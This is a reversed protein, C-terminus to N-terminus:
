HRGTAGSAAITIRGERFESGTQEMARSLAPWDELDTAFIKAVMHRTLEPVLLNLMAPSYGMEDAIRAWYLNSSEWSEGLLRYSDGAFAPFPKVNLIGCNDTQALIPHPVGFDKSLREPDTDSSDKRVLDDLERGEAGWSGADAPFRKRYEAALYFKEAPTIQPILAGVEDEHSLARQTMEMRKATMADSLIETVRGRLETNQVSALLLEEGFRQYLAAAHMETSSVRWWRPQTASVLLTPVEARWILAQVNEPAIFDEETLALVYPLDALSGILYAGGGATVGVGILEPSDWTTLYGQISSASFDHSRVLLPNHHLTQAGPPEDYAYNLGVLTDRLFPTLQGRAVELQAPSGPGRIVKTLDTRIQLEAHRSNYIGGTWAIKEGETFIPRPMEFERLNGALQILRDGIKAGHAMEGLGDYLGFLTDLSALRQDDMVTRMREALERHARRGDESEQVPGALLDIIQDQSLDADGKVTVLLSRLANRSAEFLQISSSVAAFPQVVDQWSQNIRDSPIQQQRALIEWLGIDAQFSGMANARLTPSNIRNVAEAASVFGGISADNLAPFDSFILYWNHFRSFGGSLLLVTKDSLRPGPARAHDIASLMLYTQLPGIDNDFASCAVLALLLQDPDDWNSARKVWGRVLEPSSNESLIQRWIALTGPVYPKDNPEWQVRTSLILLGSNKPYVGRTASNDAGARRYVDYLLKMRPWETLRMQQGRSVRSVADFYAALWGHDKTLLHNVFNASSAPSAGVLNEWGREASAGGPVIVRGSRICIQSGYFDLAPAVPLLARLGPSRSLAIQTEEDNKSLAWYLRDVNEDHLLVDLLNSGGKRRWVSAGTWEKEHFLIPVRTAPFMYSFSTHKQLADELGTLPFGSDLTLFAREASAARLYAGKEGCTPQFQYGLVQILRTADDCGTVHIMGDAGALLQLERAYEVYRNLLVLFETPAGDQYGRLYINRALLPLVEDPTVEQSIGSMRLLSRLPGPIIVTDAAAVPVPAASRVDAAVSSPGDEPNSAWSLHCASLCLLSSAFTALPCLPLKM